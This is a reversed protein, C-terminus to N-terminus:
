YFRSVLCEFRGSLQNNGNLAKNVCPLIGTSDQKFTTIVELPRSRHGM